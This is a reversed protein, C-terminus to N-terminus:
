KNDEQNEAIDLNTELSRRRQEYEERASALDYHRKIVEMSANVREAVTELPIGQNLQWTISGSRVQHPSRSSPCKSAHSRQTYECSTRRRGHPCDMWLCPQTAQYCWARLTAFSARGQRTAFLPERGHEDRKDGRERVIYTDLAECVAESLGVYREGAAKNKLPTGTDPRHYFAVYQEDADYDKLDLGRLSGMRAGTHWALELFAHTPRGFNGRSNRFYSLADEADDQALRQDSQEEDPELNPVDVSDPMNEAVAEISALYKMLVRLTALKGKITAPALGQDRVYIGYEDIIWPSLQEVTEIGNEECWREFTALRNRYSRLTRETRDTQRKRIFRDVAQSVTMDEPSSPLGGDTKPRSGPLGPVDSKLGCSGSNSTM